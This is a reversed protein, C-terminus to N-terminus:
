KREPSTPRQDEFKMYIAEIRMLLRKKAHLLSARVRHEEQSLNTFGGDNHRHWDFGRM